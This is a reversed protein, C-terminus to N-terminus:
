DRQSVQQKAKALFEDVNWLAVDGHEAQEFSLQLERRLQQEVLKRYESIEVLVFTQQTEEDALCLPVGAQQRIAARQDDTLPLVM